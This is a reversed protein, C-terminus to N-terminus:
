FLKLFLKLPLGMDIGVEYSPVRYVFDAVLVAAIFIMNKYNLLSKDMLKMAGIRDPLQFILIMFFLIFHNYLWRGVDIAILFLPVTLLICIFFATLLVKKNSFEEKKIIFVYYLIFLLQLTFSVIYLGVTNLHELYYETKILEMEKWQFINQDQLNIGCENVLRLTYSYDPNMSGMLFIFVAPICFALLIRFSKQIDSKGNHLFLILLFYPTYFIFSEHILVSLSFSLLLIVERFGSYKNKILFYTFISFLLWLIGDKRSGIAADSLFGWLCFPTLFLFVDTINTKKVKFLLLLIYFFLIYVIAQAVFVSYQLKISFSDYLFVFVTGLLGRRKFGGDQYNILWDAFAFGNCVYYAFGIKFLCLVTIGILYWGSTFGKLAKKM